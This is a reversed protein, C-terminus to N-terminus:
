YEITAIIRKILREFKNKVKEATQTVEEHSLKTDSIGAALNTICSIASVNIGRYAAYIAEHVTSMGVADGGVKSIMKIESPTEYSPGSTFFYTGEKLDVKEELASKKIIQNLEESPFKKFNEKTTSSTAGIVKTIEKKIFISNFSKNLMLDGPAFFPNIGGAANTLLLYKCNLSKVIEIPLLCEEIKYGEYFHVRGQFLLIPLDSYKAFHIKGSHGEVTSKPYDSLKETDITKIIQLSKAFDGLGSGLVIGLKPTFPAERKVESLLISYIKSIDIM